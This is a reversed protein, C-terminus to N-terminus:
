GDRSAERPRGEGGVEKCSAGSPAYITAKVSFPPHRQGRPWSPPQTSSGDPPTSVAEPVLGLVESIDETTSRGTLGRETTARGSGPSNRARVSRMGFQRLVFYPLTLTWVRTTARLLAEVKMTVSSGDRCLPWGVIVFSCPSRIALM